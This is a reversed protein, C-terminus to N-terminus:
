MGPKLFGEVLDQAKKAVDITDFRKLKEIESLFTLIVNRRPM